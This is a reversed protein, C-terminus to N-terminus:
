ARVRRVDAWLITPGGTDSARLVTAVRTDMRANGIWTPPVLASGRPHPLITVEVSPASMIKNGFFSGYMAKRHRIITLIAAEEGLRKEAQSRGGVHIVDHRVGRSPGVPVHSTSPSRAGKGYTAERSVMALELARTGGSIRGYGGRWWVRKLYM